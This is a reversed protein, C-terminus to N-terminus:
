EESEMEQRVRLILHAIGRESRRDGADRLAATIEDVSANSQLLRRILADHRTEAEGRKTRVSLLARRQGAYRSITSKTVDLQVAIEEYTLGEDRLERIREATANRIGHEDKFHKIEQPKVGLEHALNTISNKHRVLADVLWDRNWYPRAGIRALEEIPWHDRTRFLSAAPERPAEADSESEFALVQVVAEGNNAVIKISGDELIEAHQAQTLINIAVLLDASKPMNSKKM